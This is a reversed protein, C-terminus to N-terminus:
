CKASLQEYVWGLYSEIGEELAASALAWRWYQDELGQARAKEPIGMLDWIEYSINPFDGNFGVKGMRECLCIMRFDQEMLRLIIPKSIEDSM